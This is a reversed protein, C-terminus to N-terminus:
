NQTVTTIQSVVLHGSPDGSDAQGQCIIQVVASRDALPGPRKPHGYRDTIVDRLTQYSFIITAPANPQKELNNKMDLCDNPGLKGASVVNVVLEEAEFHDIKDTAAAQFDKLAQGSAYTSLSDLTSKGTEVYWLQQFVGELWTKAIAKMADDPQCFTQSATDVGLVQGSPPQNRAAEAAALQDLPDTCASTAALAALFL